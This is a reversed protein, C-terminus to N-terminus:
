LATFETVANSDNLYFLKGDARNIAIETAAGPTSESDDTGEALSSPSVGSTNSGRILLKNIDAM